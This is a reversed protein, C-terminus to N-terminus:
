FPIDDDEPENTPQAVQFSVFAAKLDASWGDYGWSDQIALAEYFRESGAKLRRRFLADFASPMPTALLHMQSFFYQFVYDEEEEVNSSLKDSLVHLAEAKLLFVPFLSTAWTGLAGGRCRRETRDYRGERMSRILRNEIRLRAVENLHEWIKCRFSAVILRITTEDDVVKLEESIVDHVQKKEDESMLGLLVDFFHRLNEPKWAEKSRYVHLFVEMRQGPPIEAVLLEAYRRQPVFDPDLVRRVFDERSFQAKAQDIQRVLYGIFLILAQADEESDTLKEHSRPNRVAQYMGRLLQEFGKQINWDSESQLKNLKIKPAAGGLAQGVLAVGDGELGSKKRLLDSLFYIADLIAGTFERKEYNLRVAEWLAEPLRTELNM